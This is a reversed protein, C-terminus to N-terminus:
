PRQWVAASTYVRSQHPAPFPYPMRRVSRRCARGTGESVGSAVHVVIFGEGSHLTLRLWRRVGCEDGSRIQGSRPGGLAFGRSAPMRVRIRRGADQGRRLSWPCRTTDRPEPPSTSPLSGSRGASDRRKRAARCRTGSEGHRRAHGGRQRRRPRPHRDRRRSWAATSRSRPVTPGARSSARRCGTVSPANRPRNGFGCPSFPSPFGQTSGRVV